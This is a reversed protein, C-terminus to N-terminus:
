IDRRNIERDILEKKVLHDFKNEAASFFVDVPAGKSIQQALTGFSGFNYTVGVTSYKDEFLKKIEGLADQLNVATSVTIVTKGDATQHLFISRKERIFANFFLSPKNLTQFVYFGTLHDDTFYSM